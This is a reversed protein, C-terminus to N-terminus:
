GSERHKDGDRSRPPSSDRRSWDKRSDKEHYSDRDYQNDYSKSRDDYSDGKGSAPTQHGMQNGVGPPPPFPSYMYPEQYTPPPISINPPIPLPTSPMCPPMMGPPPINMNPPPGMYGPPPMATMGPPIIDSHARGTMVQTFNIEKIVSILLM